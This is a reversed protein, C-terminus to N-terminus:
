KDTGSTAVDARSRDPLSHVGDTRVRGGKLVTRGRELAVTTFLLNEGDKWISTQLTEGPYVEGSFRAEISRISRTDGGLASCTVHKCAIALMCLGHLIPHKFGSKLAATPIAHLPNDDGLLRYQLALSRSTPTIDVVDPPRGPEEDLRQGPRVASPSFGGDNRALIVLETDALLAGTEVDFIESVLSIVAGREAGRDEVRGIRRRSILRASVPIPRHM